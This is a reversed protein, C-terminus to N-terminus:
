ISLLTTWGEIDKIGTLKFRQSGKKIEGAKFTEEANEM